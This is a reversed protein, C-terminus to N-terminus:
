QSHDRLGHLVARISVCVGFMAVFVVTAKAGCLIGSNGSTTWLESDLRGFFGQICSPWDLAEGRLRSDPISKVRGCSLKM